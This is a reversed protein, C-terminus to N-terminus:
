DYVKLVELHEWGDKSQVDIQFGDYHFTGKSIGRNLECSGSEGFELEYGEGVQQAIQQETVVCGVMADAADRDGSAPKANGDAEAAVPVADSGQQAAEQETSCGVACAVVVVSMALSFVAFSLRRNAKM